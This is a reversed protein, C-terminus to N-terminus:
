IQTSCSTWYMEFIFSKNLSRSVDQVEVIGTVGVIFGVVLAVTAGVVVVTAGVVVVTAVVVVVTERVDVVTAVEVM